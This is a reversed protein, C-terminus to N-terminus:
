WVTAGLTASPDAYARMPIASAMGPACCAAAVPVSTAAAVAAAAAAAVAAAVAAAAAAVAAHLPPVLLNGDTGPSTM